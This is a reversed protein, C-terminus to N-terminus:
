VGPRVELFLSLSACFNENRITDGEIEQHSAIYALLGSSRKATFGYGLKFHHHAATDEEALDEGILTVDPSTREDLAWVSTFVTLQTPIMPFPTARAKLRRYGSM